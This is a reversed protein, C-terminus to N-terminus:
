DLRGIHVNRAYDLVGFVQLLWLVIIIVVVINIIKKIAPSMPIYSNVLWMLVGVVILTILLGILSM